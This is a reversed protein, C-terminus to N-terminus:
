KKDKAIKWNRDYELKEGPDKPPNYATFTTNTRYGLSTLDVFCNDWKGDDTAISKIIEKRLKDM